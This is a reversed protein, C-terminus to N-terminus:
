HVDYNSRVIRPTFQKVPQFGALGPPTAVGPDPRRMAFFLAAALLLGLLFAPVPIRIEGNLLWRWGRAEKREWLRAELDAPALPTRWERLVEKIEDDNM